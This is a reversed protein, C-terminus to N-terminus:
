AWNTTPKAAGAAPELANVAEALLAFRSFRGRHTPAALRQMRNLWMPGLRNAM